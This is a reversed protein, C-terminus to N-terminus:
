WKQSLRCEEMVVSAGNPFTVACQVVRGRTAVEFRSVVEGPIYSVRVKGSVKIEEVPLGNLILGADPPYLRVAEFPHVGESTPKVVQNAWDKLYTALDEPEGHVTFVASNLDIAEAAGDEKQIIHYRAEITESFVGYFGKVREPVEDASLERAALWEMRPDSKVIAEAGKTLTAAVLFGRQAKADEVKRAFDAVEKKGVKRKWNKCEFIFTAEYGAAVEVNVWIDVEHHVGATSKFKKKGEIRVTKEHYGPSQRLVALEIARVAREFEDGKQRPTIM